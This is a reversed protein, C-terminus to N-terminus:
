RSRTHNPEKQVSPTPSKKAIDLGAQEQHPFELHPLPIKRNEVLNTAEQALKEDKEEESNDNWYGM